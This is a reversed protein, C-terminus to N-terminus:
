ASGRFQPRFGGSAGEKSFNRRRYEERDQSYGSGESRGGFRPAAPRAVKKMSNPVIGPPLNLYKRLYEIGEETITYYYYQWSFITTIYGKSNLSKMAMVVELNRVPIEMHKVNNDKKAVLVGDKFLAEYILKRNAKSILM